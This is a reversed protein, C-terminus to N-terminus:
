IAALLLYREGPGEGEYFALRGPLCSILTGMGRGIVADLADALPLRCGDLAADEALLVCEPPAGKSRLLVEIEAPTHVGKPLEHTCRPDLDRLHALARRLKERGRPSALLGLYRERREPAIFARVLASSHEMETM